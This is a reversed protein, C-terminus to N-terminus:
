LLYRGGLGTNIMDGTETIIVELYPLNHFDAMEHRPSLFHIGQNSSSPWTGPPTARDGDYPGDILVDVRSLLEEGEPMALIQDRTRGSFLLVSLDCREKLSQLLSVLGPMQDTPEGGSLTIGNIGKITLVWHVCEAVEM